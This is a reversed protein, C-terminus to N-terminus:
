YYSGGRAAGWAWINHGAQRAERLKVDHRADYWEPWIDIAYRTGPPQKGVVNWIDDCIVEAGFEKCIRNGFWDLLEASQEVVIIKKVQKRAAIQKLFWGMGLGGIVVRGQSFSIGSRMSFVEAPTISMWTKWSRVPHRTPGHGERRFLTPIAVDTTFYVRPQSERGPFMPLSLHTGAPLRAHQYAWQEHVVMGKEDLLKSTPVDFLRHGLDYTEGKIMLPQEGSSRPPKAESWPVAYKLLSEYYEREHRMREARQKSSEFMMGFFM